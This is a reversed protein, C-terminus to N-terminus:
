VIFLDASTLCLVYCSSAVFSSSSHSRMYMPWFFPSPQISLHARWVIAFFFVMVFLDTCMHSRFTWKCYVRRCIPCNNHGELWAMICDSHFIHCCKTNRSMTINEKADFEDFCISCFRASFDKTQLNKEICERMEQNTRNDLNPAFDVENSENITQDPMMNPSSQTDRTTEIRSTNDADRGQRTSPASEDVHQVSSRRCLRLPVCECAIGVSYPIVFSMSLMIYGALGQEWHWALILPIFFGAIWLPSIFFFCIYEGRLINLVVLRWCICNWFLFIFFIAMISDNYIKENSELTDDNIIATDIRRLYQSMKEYSFSKNWINYAHKKVDQSEAFM